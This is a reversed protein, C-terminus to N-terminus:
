PAKTVRQLEAFVYFLCAAAVTEIVVWTIVIWNFYGTMINSLVYYSVVGAIAVAGIKATAPDSVVNRYVFWYCVGILVVATTFNISDERFISIGGICAGMAMAIAVAIKLRWASPPVPGALAAAKQAAPEPAPAANGPDRMQPPADAALLMKISAALRALHSELPPTLADLWHVPGMFYAMAKTPVINEIRVPLVPIGRNVVREVERRIQPSSNASSSFILVLVRCHDLAEMISDGWDFGPLIDRPAIWCRIGTAELAACAADAIAKDNSSYSIFVDFNMTDRDNRAAPTLRLL